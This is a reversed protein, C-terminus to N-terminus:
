SIITLFILIGVISLFGIIESILITAISQIIKFKETRRYVFRFISVAALLSLGILLIVSKLSAVTYFPNAPVLGYSVNLPILLFGIVLNRKLFLKWNM